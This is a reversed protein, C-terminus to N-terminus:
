STRKLLDDLLSGLYTEIVDLERQTVPVLAPYDDVVEPCYCAGGRLEPPLDAPMRSGGASPLRHNGRTM